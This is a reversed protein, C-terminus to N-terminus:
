SKSMGYMKKPELKFQNKDLMNYMNNHLRVDTLLSKVKSVDVLDEYIRDAPDAGMKMFDGFLIPNTEFASPEVNQCVYISNISM